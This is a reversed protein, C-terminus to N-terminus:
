SVQMKHSFKLIIFEAPRAVAMGIEVNMIGNLIDDATMTVGLGVKVYFADDPKAGALAGEQWKTILYNEIMSKVMVWTNKTNPEFVAWVTSKQVSEEVMNFFRRVNVYRWENSNGDLTRAGWVITGRGSFSRIVNISKGAGADINLEGQQDDNLNIVPGVVNAVSVNAPAKWVGRASDVRAYIGAMAPSPPLVVKLKAAIENKLFNFLQNKKADNIEKLTKGAVTESAPADAGNISHKGIKLTDADTSVDINTLLYPYYAAAYRVQDYDAPSNTRFAEANEIYTKKPDHKVDVIAVRDKLEFCQKISEGIVGNMETASLASAEPIVIMTPEDYARIKDIGKKLDDADPGDDEFKGVSVIYCNGGGNAYFLQMSDYLNHSSLKSEDTTIKVVSKTILKTTADQWQELDIAYADAKQVPGKGFYEEFEKLSSIRTPLTIGEGNKEAKETYGIFAPIATEVEAVSPPFVSIEKVYVGPTRYAM